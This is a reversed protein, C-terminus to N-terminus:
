EAAANRRVLKARGNLIDEVLSSVADTFTFDCPQPPRAAATDKLMRAFLVLWEREPMVVTLEKDQPLEDPNLPGDPGCFETLGRKQALLLERYKRLDAGTLTTRVIEEGRQGGTLFVANVDVPGAPLSNRLIQKAHCCGVDAGARRCLGRAALAAMERGALPVPNEGLPRRAEPAVEAERARVLALLEPDCPATDHLVEVVEGRVLSVAGSDTDVSLEVRGLFAANGGAQVVAAGSPAIVPERILEHSHGGVFLNVEPAAGALALCDSKGLHALVVLLDTEPALRKAEAAVLAATEKLSRTDADDTNTIAGIVGIRIGNVTKVASPAFLTGGAKDFANCCVPVAGELLAYCEKLYAEGYTFDHNGPTVMDYRMRAALEYTLRSKTRHAAMDGKEMMDGGDLLLIDDRKAREAAVLGALPCLGERGNYGPAVHDHIDNTHLVLLSRTEAGATFAFLALALALVRSVSCVRSFAM